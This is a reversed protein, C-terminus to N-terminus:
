QKKKKQDVNDQLYKNIDTKAGKLVYITTGEERALENTIRGAVFVTDFLSQATKELEDNDTATKVLIIQTINTNLDFWNLYDANFSNARIKRNQTYFNIAGAEGYNDCLILTQDIDPLNRYISDVKGALEKWGLMDAFDQPLSHDKGDEWRLLGLAKYRDANAKIYGPSKNPFAVMLLPIFFTVVMAVAVPQLYRKWGVSLVGALFVSGFAIYVPYLGIAYYPKARLYTFVALTFIISWLFFRYKKFPPYLLLAYFAVLIVFWADLFFLLQEKLFDLRNVHVLQTESLEKLHHFVPFDNRYQWVLNPFILLLGLVVAIYFQKNAFINRQKSMLIAPFLGILLFIFNYKNLFGIAFVLAGIFLWKSNKTNVFKIVIFYFTTWALIDLSNPQYLINIRLIASFLVSTAGLILAFLNGNLEEITKWVVYITLAGFLAPFFKVWFVGNGLLSIVWSIWSTVPPVSAYGLALHNAQDLHLYEDRHLEYEPNILFYQLLFKLVIFGFLVWSEKKM